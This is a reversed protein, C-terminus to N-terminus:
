PQVPQVMVTRGSTAVHCHSLVRQLPNRCCLESSDVKLWVTGCDSDLRLHEIYRSTIYHYAAVPWHPRCSVTLNLLKGLLGLSESAPLPV